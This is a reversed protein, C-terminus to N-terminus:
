LDFIDVTVKEVTVRVKKEPYATKNRHVLANHVKPKKDEDIDAYHDVLVDHDKLFEVFANATDIDDIANGHTLFDSPLKERIMRAKVSQQHKEKKIREIFENYSIQTFFAFPNETLNPDFRDVKRLCKLIADAVMEDRYTYNVFNFKTSLREAIQMIAVCVTDPIPQEPNKTKAEKYEKLSEYLARGNVYDAM